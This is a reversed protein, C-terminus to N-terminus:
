PVDIVVPIDDPHTPTSLGYHEATHQKLMEQCRECDPANPDYEADVERISMGCLAPGSSRYVLHRQKM